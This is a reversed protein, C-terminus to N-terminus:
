QLPPTPAIPDTQTEAEWEDQRVTTQHESTKEWSATYLPQTEKPREQITEVTTQTDNQINEREATNETVTEEVTTEQQTIAETTEYNQNITTASNFDVMDYGQHIDKMFDHFIESTYIRGLTKPYDYGMWIATTYYKSYGCFWADKHSNTTGTKGAVICNDPAAGVGTGSEVVTKLMDTMMRCSNIDYIRTGRSSTDVICEGSSNYIKYICTAKRYEGENVITAYAGAMEETSVGYTFGGIAVANYDKDMWVKNFGMNLLFSIGARPTIEQYINWAVTNKSVRVAERLTMNGSFTGDSNVPGDPIYEDTVITDPTNGKQLYPIYDILPKITSGSQRYSQYARNLTYGELEQSRSGVIAVVNGTSNDICTAAAQLEYVGENNLETYSVLNNDVAAQLSAQANMDISTYISYGGSFLMQQCETYYDQYKQEYNEYDTDNDFNNRFAFGCYEMLSETACHRTYTEVSNNKSQAIQKIVTVSEDKATYYNMSSIYDAEYMQALILNRRQLTNDYNTVPNYRTPNNPIAAIFAQESLSLESVSKGFYGKAAAEVGYYGNGFCINNLYFELIQEKTYKKELDRALFIEEIKREWTVEQSLFINRALQQTITSAGQVIEDSQQNVIAARIIAKYDIGSHSYFDRDEMVVFANALTEPINSFEVYYLDKSDKMTCLENGLFDYILTTKGDKFTSESSNQAIKKAENSLKVIKQIKPAAYIMVALFLVFLSFLIIRRIKRKKKKSVKAM